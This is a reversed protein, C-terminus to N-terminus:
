SRQLNAGNTAIVEHYYDFSKKKTRALTGRGNDDLDVYVFGYRKSMEGRSASILDIPGWWCYGMLDVGDAIADACSVLHDNLYKIRYDDAVYGTEDPTDVAGLGNEVIFLPIRYRDYLENLAIRLGLPDIEWGWESAQLYPNRVGNFVNGDTELYHERDKAETVSMYYSFSLFDVPHERMLAFDDDSLCCSVGLEKMYAEFYYPCVGSTLIDATYFSQRRLKQFTYFVDDPNCTRPYSPFYLIMAGIKAEPNIEHGIRVANNVSYLQHFVADMVRQARNDGEKLILGTHNCYTAGREFDLIARNMENFVIWYKVKERYREMVVRCYREFHFAVERNDWGGYAKMLHVPMEFHSLTVVPEIGQEHLEDFVTDYFQLGKENPVADDGNPFIRTWAISMRFCSLGLEGLLAIDESHRHYFDTGRHNPYFTGPKVELSFDSTCGAANGGHLCDAFSLGKGDENWAGEIQNAASAGGWMFSSPFQIANAM